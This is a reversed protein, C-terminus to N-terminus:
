ELAKIRAEKLPARNDLAKAPGSMEIKPHPSCRHRFGELKLRTSSVSINNPSRGGSDTRLLGLIEPGQEDTGEM